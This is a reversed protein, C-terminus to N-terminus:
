RTEVNISATLPYGTDYAVYSHVPVCMGILYAIFIQLNEADQTSKGSPIIGSTSCSDIREVSGSTQFASTIARATHEMVRAWLCLADFHSFTETLM